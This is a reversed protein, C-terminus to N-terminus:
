LLSYSVSVMYGALSLIKVPVDEEQRVTNNIM